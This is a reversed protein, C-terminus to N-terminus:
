YVAVRGNWVLAMLRVMACPKHRVPLNALQIAADVHSTLSYDEVLQKIGAILESREPAPMNLLHKLASQWSLVDGPPPMM